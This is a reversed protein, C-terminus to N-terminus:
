KLGWENYEPVTQGTQTGRLLPIFIRWKNGAVDVRVYESVFEFSSILEYYPTRGLTLM